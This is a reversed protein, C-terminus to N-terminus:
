TGIFVKLPEWWNGIYEEVKWITRCTKSNCEILAKKLYIFGMYVKKSKSAKINSKKESFIRKLTEVMGLGVKYKKM